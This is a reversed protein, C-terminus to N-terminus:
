CNRTEYFDGERIYYDYYHANVKAGAQPLLLDSQACNLM